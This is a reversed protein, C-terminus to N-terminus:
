LLCKRLSEILDRDLRKMAGDVAYTARQNADLGILDRVVEVHHQAEIQFRPHEFTVERHGIEGICPVRAHLGVQPHARRRIGEATQLVHM